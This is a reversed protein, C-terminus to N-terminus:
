GVLSKFLSTEKRARMDITIPAALHEKMLAEKRLMAKENVIQYIDQRPTRVSDLAQSETLRHAQHTPSPHAVDAFVIPQNLIDNDVNARKTASEENDSGGNDELTQQANAELRAKTEEICMQVFRDVIAAKNKNRAVLYTPSLDEYGMHKPHIHAAIQAMPHRFYQRMRYRYNAYLMYGIRKMFDVPVCALSELIGDSGEKFLVVRSSLPVIKSTIVNVIENEVINLTPLLEGMLDADKSEFRKM